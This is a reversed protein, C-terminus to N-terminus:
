DTMPFCGQDRRHTRNTVNVVAKAYGEVRVCVVPRVDAPQCPMLISQPITMLPAFLNVFFSMDLQSRFELVVWEFQRPKGVANRDLRTVRTGQSVGGTRM